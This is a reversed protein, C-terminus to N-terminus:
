FEDDFAQGLLRLPLDKNRKRATEVIQAAAAGFRQFMIQEPSCESMGSCMGTRRAVFIFRVASQHAWEPIFVTMRDITARNRIAYEGEVVLTTSGRPFFLRFDDHREMDQAYAVRCVVLALVASLLGCLLREPGSRVEARM